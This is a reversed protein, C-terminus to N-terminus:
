LSFRIAIYKEIKRFLSDEPVMEEMTMFVAESQIIKNITIMKMVRLEIM